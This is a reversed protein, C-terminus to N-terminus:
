HQMCVYCDQITCAVQYSQLFYLKVYKALGQTSHSILKKLSNRSPQKIFTAFFAPSIETCLCTKVKYTYIKHKDRTDHNHVEHKFMIRWNQFYFPLDHHLYIYLLFKLQQLKHIDDVKLLSLKKYLSETHSIYNNLTIIRLAKKQLKIIRSSEFGWAM